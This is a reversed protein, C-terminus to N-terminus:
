LTSDFSEDVFLADKDGSTKLEKDESPLSVKLTSADLGEVKANDDEVVAFDNHNKSELDENMAQEHCGRKWANERPVLNHEHSDEFRVGGMKTPAGNKTEKIKLLGGEQEPFDVSKSAKSQRKLATSFKM